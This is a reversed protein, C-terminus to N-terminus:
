FYYGFLQSLKDEQTGIKEGVQSVLSAAETRYESVRRKLIGKRSGEGVIVCLKEFEEKSFYNGLEKVNAEKREQDQAKKGKRLMDVLKRLEEVFIRKDGLVVKLNVLERQSLDLMTLSNFKSDVDGTLDGADGVLSCIKDMENKKNKWLNKSYVDQNEKVGKSKKKLQPYNEYLSDQVFQHVTSFWVTESVMFNEDFIKDRVDLENLIANDELYIQLARFVPSYNLRNPHSPALHSKKNEHKTIYTKLDKLILASM